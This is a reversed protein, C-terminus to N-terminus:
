LILLGLERLEAWAEAIEDFDGPFSQLADDISLAVDSPRAMELLQCLWDRVDDSCSISGEADTTHLVLGDESIMPEGGLWLLRGRTRSTSSKLAQEIRDHAETSPPIAVDFWTNVPHDIEDGKLWSELALPLVADFKDHECGESDIHPVDNQAFSRAAARQAIQVGFDKPAKFIPAHRTLVFRHWFASNILGSAFLQRVIEMSDITEQETQSPFGYMLYAHVMVGAEQFASACRAVQEVTVGKDIRKLLRENAVELGGTVAILGAKALLRCLDPDYSKEFRINGWFSIKVGRRLLEIALSRLLKPPAAEDVFHFGREGTEEILIEIQDVLTAAVGSEYHGIYDLSIDCFTCKKWYCGHALTIKNWRGDAWLRHAPNLTDITQLYSGLDLDGYFPTSTFPPREVNADLMGSATRTRHRKDEGGARHELLARLPGEGDDYTVADVCQWLRPEDVDRLETNIYGGGMVVYVGREKLRRGLRLAGYLNGPFPVSLGVVETTLSDCLADLHRDVITEQGLRAWIPEFSQASTALHAQYRSLAFGEDICATILDATDAIYLTALHRAADQGGMPGFSRLDARQMRPGAPLFGTELIRPAINAARGQLFAIAPGIAELHHEALSLARWAEEPLEDREALEEFVEELGERSLLRLVLEIGFDRQSCAINHRRLDQALYSISPYPTNLQTLPPLVLTLSM